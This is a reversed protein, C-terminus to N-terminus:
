TTIFTAEWRDFVTENYQLLKELLENVSSSIILRNLMAAPIFGAAVGNNLFELLSDYYHLVNLIAIPKDHFGLQALSLVEFFEDMSGIGGPLIIFGDARQWIVTKREEMSNVIHLQTLNPHAIEKEVLSRPIVGIVAGGHRLAANALEGMLGVKGGGYILTLGLQAIQEGLLQTAASYALNKGAQAGCFVAIQKM